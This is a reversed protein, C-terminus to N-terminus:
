RQISEGESSLGDFPLNGALLKHLVVGLSWTDVVPTYRQEDLAEPAMFPLTSVFKTMNKGPTFTTAFGFDILKLQGSSSLM